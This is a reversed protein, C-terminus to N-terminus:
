RNRCINKIKDLGLYADQMYMMEAKITTDKTAKIHANMSAAGSALWEEDLREIYILVVGFVVKSSSLPRHLRSVPYYGWTLDVGVSYLLREVTEVDEREHAEKFERCLLLDHFSIISTNSNDELDENIKFGALSNKM